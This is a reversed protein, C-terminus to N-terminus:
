QGEDVIFITGPALYDKEYPHFRTRLMSDLNSWTYHFTNEESSPYEDLKSWTSLYISKRGKVKYYQQLLQALTAKGSAPTGRVHM